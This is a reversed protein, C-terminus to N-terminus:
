LKEEGVWRYAFKNAGKTTQPEKRVSPDANVTAYFNLIHYIDYENYSMANIKTELDFSIYLGLSICLNICLYSM